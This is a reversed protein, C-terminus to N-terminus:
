SQLQGRGRLNSCVFTISDIKGIIVYHDNNYPEWLTMSMVDLENDISHNDNNNDDNNDDELHYDNDDDKNNDDIIM